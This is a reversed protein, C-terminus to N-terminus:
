SLKRLSCVPPFNSSSRFVPARDPRLHSSDIDLLKIVSFPLNAYGINGNGIESVM